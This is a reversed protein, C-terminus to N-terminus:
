WVKQSDGTKTSRGRARQAASRNKRLREFIAQHTIQRSLHLIKKTHYVCIARFPFIYLYHPCISQIFKNKSGLFFFTNKQSFFLPNLSICRTCKFYHELVSLLLVIEMFLLLLRMLFLYLKSFSQNINRIIINNHVGM